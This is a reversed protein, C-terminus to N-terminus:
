PLPLNSMIQGLLRIADLVMATALKMLVSSGATKQQVASIHGSRGIGRGLRCCCMIHIVHNSCNVVFLCYIICNIEVVGPYDAFLRVPPLWSM